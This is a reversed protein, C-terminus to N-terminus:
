SNCSIKEEPWHLHYSPEIRLLYGNLSSAAAVTFLAFVIYFPLFNPLFMATLTFLGLFLFVVMNYMRYMLAADRIRSSTRLSKLVPYALVVLLIPLVQAVMFVPFILLGILVVRDIKRIGRPEKAQGPADDAGDKEPSVLEFLRFFWRTKVLLIVSLVSAVLLVVQVPSFGLVKGGVNDGRTFETLFRGASFLLIFVQFLRNELRGNRYLIFLLVGTLLYVLMDLIQTPFHTKMYFQSYESVWTYTVFFPGSGEFGHCCGNVFCGVKAVALAFPFAISFASLTKLKVKVDLRLLVLFLLVSCVVFLPGGWLGGTLMGLRIYVDFVNGEFGGSGGGFLEAYFDYLGKHLLTHECALFYLAHAGFIMGALYLAALLNRLGRGFSVTKLLKGAVLVFVVFACM